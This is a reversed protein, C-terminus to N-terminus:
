ATPHEIDRAGVGHGFTGLRSVILSGQGLALWGAAGVVNYVNGESGSAYGFVGDAATLLAVVCLAAGTVGAARCCAWTHKTSAFTAWALTGIGAVILSAWLLSRWSNPLAPWGDHIAVTALMACGMVAMGVRGARSRQGRFYQATAFTLVGSCTNGIAALVLVSPEIQDSPFSLALLVGAAYAAAVFLFCVSAAKLAVHLVRYPEETCQNLVAQPVAARGARAARRRPPVLPDTDFSYAFAIQDALEGIAAKRNYGGVTAAVTLWSRMIGVEPKSPKLELERLARRLLRRGVQWRRKVRGILHVQFLGWGTIAAAVSLQVVLRVVQEYTSDRM